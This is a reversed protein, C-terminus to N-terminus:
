CPGNQGDRMPERIWEASPNDRRAQWGLPLDSVEAVTPDRDLVEQLSVCVADELIPESPGLFQWGEDDADHTVYVMPERGEIVSRMTIVLRAPPDTFPWDRM